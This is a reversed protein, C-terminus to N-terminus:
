RREEYKITEDLFKLVAGPLFPSGCKVRVRDWWCPQETETCQEYPKSIFQNVMLIRTYMSSFEPGDSVTLHFMGRDRMYTSKDWPFTSDTYWVEHKILDFIDRPSLVWRSRELLNYWEKIRGPDAESRGPRELTGGIYPWTTADKYTWSDLSEFPLVKRLLFLYLFDFVELCDLKVEWNTTITKGRLTIRHKIWTSLFDDIFTEYRNRVQFSNSEPPIKTLQLTAIAISHVCLSKYFRAKFGHGYQRSQMLRCQATSSRVLGPEVLLKRVEEPLTAAFLSRFLEFEKYLIDDLYLDRLFGMRRWRLTIADVDGDTLMNTRQKTEMTALLNEFSWKNMNGFKNCDWM